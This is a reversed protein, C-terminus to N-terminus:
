CSSDVCSTVYNTIEDHGGLALPFLHDITLKDSPFRQGCYVCYYDDRTYVEKRITKSISGRKFKTEHTFRDKM